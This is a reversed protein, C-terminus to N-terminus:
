GRAGHAAEPHAAMFHRLIAFLRKAEPVDDAHLAARIDECIMQQVKQPGGHDHMLREIEAVAVAEAVHAHDAVLAIETRDLVCMDVMDHLSIM